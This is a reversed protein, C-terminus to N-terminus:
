KASPTSTTGGNGNVLVSVGKDFQEALLNVSMKEPLYGRVNQVGAAFSKAVEIKVVALRANAAVSYFWPRLVQTATLVVAAM